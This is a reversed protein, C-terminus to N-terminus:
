RGTVRPRHAAAVVETAVQTLTRGHRAREVLMEYATALDVGHEYALVGKARDFVTTGRLARLVRSQVEVHPLDVRQMVVLTAIDAYAQALRLEDDGFARPRGYFTNLAGITHGFWRMPSAHVSQFGAGLIADAIESPWRHRIQAPDVAAAQAATRIADVCPGAAHSTEYIEIERSQHSTAALLELSDGESVVLLGAASMVDVVDDLVRALTDASDSSGVLAALADGLSHSADRTM